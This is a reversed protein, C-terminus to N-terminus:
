LSEEISAERPYKSSLSGATLFAMFISMSAAWALPTVTLMHPCAGETYGSSVSNRTLKPISLTLTLGSTTTDVRLSTALMSCFSMSCPRLFLDSYLLSFGHFCKYVERSEKLTRRPLEAQYLAEM